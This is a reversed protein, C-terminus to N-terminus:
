YGVAIISVVRQNTTTVYDHTVSFQSASVIQAYVGDLGSGASNNGRLSAVIGVCVSPFAIPFNGTATASSGLTGTTYWQLILGGPLKYYGNTSHTHEPSNLADVLSKLEDLAAGVNGAILGLLSAFRIDTAQPLPEQYPSGTSSAYKIIWVTSINSPRTETEGPNTGVPIAENGNHIVFDGGAYANVATSPLYHTGGGDRKLHDGHAKFADAQDSGLTRGPDVGRGDDWGRLFKGRADKLVFTTLGDGPGFWESDAGLTQIANWLDPYDARLLTQGAMELWGVPPASFPWPIIAGVPLFEGGGGPWEGSDWTPKGGADEGMKDLAAKNTHSHLDADMAYQPHPDVAGAHADVKGQAGAPTEAGVQEATTQHPNNKDQRHAESDTFFEYQPHPDEEAAHADVKAQAGQPTEHGSHPAAAGTHATLDAAKAKELDVEEIAKQVNVASVGGAPVFSV